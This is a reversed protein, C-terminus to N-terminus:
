LCLFSVFARMHPRDCSFLKITKLKNGLYEPKDWDADTWFRPFPSNYIFDAIGM